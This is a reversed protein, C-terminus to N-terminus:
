CKKFLKGKQKKHLVEVRVDFHPKKNNWSFSVAPVVFNKASHTIHELPYGSKM